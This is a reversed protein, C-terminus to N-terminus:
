YDKLQLFRKDDKYEIVNSNVVEVYLNLHNNQEPDNERIMKM